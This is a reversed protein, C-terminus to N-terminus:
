RKKFKRVKRGDSTKFLANMTQRAFKEFGGARRLSRRLAKPNLPNMSRVAVYAQKTSSWRKRIRRGSPSVEIVTGGGGGGPGMSMEPPAALELPEIAPSPNALRNVIAGVGAGAVTGIVAGTAKKVSSGSIRQVAWRGAKAALKGLGVKRAVSGIIAGIFPDGRYYGGGSYDGRYYAM